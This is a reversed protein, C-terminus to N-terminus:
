RVWGAYMLPGPAVPTLRVRGFEVHALFLSERGILLLDSSSIFALPHLDFGRLAISALKRGNRADLVYVADSGSLSTAVISGDGTLATQNGYDRIDNRYSALTRVQHRVTDALLIRSPGGACVDAENPGCQRIPQDFFSVYRGSTSVGPSGDTPIGLWSAAAVKGSTSITYWAHPAAECQCIPLALWGGTPLWVTPTLIGDERKSGGTLVRALKKVQSGDTPVTFLDSYRANSGPVVVVALIEKGDPSILSRSIDRAFTVPADNFGRGSKMLWYSTMASTGIGTVPDSEFRQLPIPDVTGWAQVQNADYMRQGEPIGLMVKRFDPSGLDVAFFKSSSDQGQFLVFPGVGQLTAGISSPTPTPTPTVSVSVSTSPSPSPRLAPKSSNSAWITATALLTLSLAAILIGALTGPKKPPRRRSGEFIHESDGGM